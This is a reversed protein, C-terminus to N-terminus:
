HTIIIKKTVILKPMGEQVSDLVVTEENSSVNDNLRSTVDVSEHRIARIRATNYDGLRMEKMRKIERRREIGYHKQLIIWIRVKVSYVIGVILSILFLIICINRILYSIQMNM